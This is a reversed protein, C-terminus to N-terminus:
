ILFGDLKLKLFGWLMEAAADNFDLQGGSLTFTVSGTIFLSYNEQIPSGMVSVVVESDAELHIGTRGGCPSALGHRNCCSFGEIVKKPMRRLNTFDDADATELASGVTTSGMLLSNSLSLIGVHSSLHMLMTISKSSEVETLSIPFALALLTFLQLVVEIKILSDSSPAIFELSTAKQSDKDVVVSVNEITQENNGLFIDTIKKVMTFWSAFARYNLSSGFILGCPYSHMFTSSNVIKEKEAQTISLAYPSIYGSSCKFYKEASALWDFTITAPFSFIFNRAIQQSKKILVIPGTILGSKSCCRRLSM